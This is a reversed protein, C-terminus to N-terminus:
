SPNAKALFSGLVLFHQQPPHLQTPVKPLELGNFVPSNSVSKSNQPWQTLHTELPSTFAGLGLKMSSLEKELFSDGFELRASLLALSDAGM